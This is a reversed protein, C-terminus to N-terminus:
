IKGKGIRYISSNQKKLNFIQRSTLVSCTDIIINKNSMNNFVINKYEKHNVAFIILDFININYIKHFVKIKLESWFNIHPDCVKITCKYKKLNLFLNESPSFRTDGVDNKYSAGFILIKKGNIKNRTLKKIVNFTHNPMNKNTNLTLNSFPFQIKSDKFIKNSSYIGFLNDKTLCYGGVGLGPRMINNHTPRVKITEIVKNLDVNIKESFKTWEDIFAINTARYSNEIVKTMEVSRINELKTLPYKKINILKALFRRCMNEAKINNGSYVRHINRISNLYNEGPMVREFSYALKVNQAGVGREEFVKEMIPIIKKECFGPPLTSEIFLLSEPNLNKAINSISKLYDKESSFIKQKKKKIDFNISCIVVQSNSINKLKTTGLFAGRQVLNKANDILSKDNVKFPFQGKSLKSLIKRGNVNNKEIGIVKYKNKNRLSNIAVVMAAGVFGLGIVSFTNDFDQM